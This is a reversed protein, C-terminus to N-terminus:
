SFELAKIRKVGVTMRQDNINVVYWGTRAKEVV